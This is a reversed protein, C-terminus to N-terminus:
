RRSNQNGGQRRLGFDERSPRGNMRRRFLLLASGLLALSISSPEPICVCWSKLTGNVVLSPTPFPNGNIDAGGLKFIMVKSVSVLTSHDFIAAQYAQEFSTYAGTWARIQIIVTDGGLHGAGVSRVDDNIYPIAPGVTGTFFLSLGDPVPGPNVVAATDGSFYYGLTMGVQVVGASNTPAASGGLLNVTGQGHANLSLFAFAFATFIENTKM